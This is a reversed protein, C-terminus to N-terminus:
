NFTNLYEPFYYGIHDLKFRTLISTNSERKLLFKFSKIILDTKSINNHCLEQHMNDDLFVIHTSIEKLTVTVEFENKNLETVQIM